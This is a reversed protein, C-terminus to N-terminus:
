IFNFFYDCIYNICIYKIYVLIKISINNDNGAISNLFETQLTLISFIDM